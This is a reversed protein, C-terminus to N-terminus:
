PRRGPPRPRGDSDVQIQQYRKPDV